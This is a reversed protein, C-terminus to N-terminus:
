FWQTTELNVYGKMRGIDVLHISPVKPSKTTFLLSGRRLPATAKLWDFFLAMFIWLFPGYFLAM